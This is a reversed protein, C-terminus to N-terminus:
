RLRRPRTTSNPCSRPCAPLFPPLQSRFPSASLRIHATTSRNRPRDVRSPERSEAPTNPSPQHCVSTIFAAPASPRGAPPFLARVRLADIIPSPMRPSSALRLRTGPSLGVGARILVSRRVHFRSPPGQAANALTFPALEWQSPKARRVSSAPPLRSRPCLDGESARDIAGGEEEGSRGREEGEGKEPGGGAGDALLADAGPETFGVRSESAVRSNRWCISIM